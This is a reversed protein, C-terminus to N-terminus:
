NYLMACGADRSRKKADAFSAYMTMGAHFLWTSVLANSRSEMDSVFLQSIYSAALAAFLFHRYKLAKSWQYKKPMVDNIIVDLLMAGGVAGLLWILVHGNVTNSTRAVLSSPESIANFWNFLATGALYVRLATLSQDPMRRNMITFYGLFFLRYLFSSFQSQSKLSQSSFETHASRRTDM